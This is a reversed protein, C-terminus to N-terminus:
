SRRTSRCGGLVRDCGRWRRRPPPWTQCTCTLCTQRPPWGSRLLLTRRCQLPLATPRRRLTHLRRRPCCARSSAPGSSSWGSGAHHHPPHLPHTHTHTNYLNTSVYLLAGAPFGGGTAALTSAGGGFTRRPVARLMRNLVRRQRRACAARGVEWVQVGAANGRSGCGGATTDGAVPTAHPRMSPAGHVLMAPPRSCRDHGLLRSDEAAGRVASLLLLSTPQQATLASACAAASPAPGGGAPTTGSRACPPANLGRAPRLQAALPQTHCSGPLQRSAQLHQHGWRRATGAACAALDWWAAAGTATLLAWCCSHAPSHTPRPHFFLKAPMAAPLLLQPQPVTRPPSGAVRWHSARDHLGCSRLILSNMRTVARLPPSALPGM